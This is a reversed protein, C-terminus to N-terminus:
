NGSPEQGEKFSNWHKQIAKLAGWRVIHELEPRVLASNLPVIVESKSVISQKKNM